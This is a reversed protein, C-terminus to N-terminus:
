AWLVCDLTSILFDQFDWNKSFCNNEICKKLNEM